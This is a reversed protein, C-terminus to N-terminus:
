CRCWCWCLGVGCPMADGNYEVYKSIVVGDDADVDDDDDVDADDDVDVDVDLWWLRKFTSKMCTLRNANSAPICSTTLSAMTAISLQTFIIM